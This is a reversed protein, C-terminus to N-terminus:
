KSKRKTIMSDIVAGGTYFIAFAIFADTALGFWQMFQPVGATVGIFIFLACAMLPISSIVYLLTHMSKSGAPKFGAFILPGLVYIAL